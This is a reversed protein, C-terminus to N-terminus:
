LPQHVCLLNGDPDLFWAAKLAGDDFVHDVTTFRLMVAVADDTLSTLV